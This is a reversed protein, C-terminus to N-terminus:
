SKRNKSMHLAIDKLIKTKKKTRDVLVCGEKKWWRGPYAKEEKQPNLGMKRAANMIEEVSANPVANDRPIRRGEKKTKRRDFYIPWLVYKEEPM